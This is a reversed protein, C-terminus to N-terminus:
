QMQQRQAAPFTPSSVTPAIEVYHHVPPTSSADGRAIAMAEERRRRWERRREQAIRRADKAIGSQTEGGPWGIHSPSFLVREFLYRILSNIDAYLMLQLPNMKMRGQPADATLGGGEGLLIYNAHKIFDFFSILFGLLFVLFALLWSLCLVTQVFLLYNWTYEAEGTEQLGGNQVRWTDWAFFTHTRLFSLSSFATTASLFLLSLQVGFLFRVNGRGVCCGAVGAHTVHQQVCLGCENCHKAGLPRWTMCELCFEERLGFRDYAFRDFDDKLKNPHWRPNGVYFADSPPRKSAANSSSSSADQKARAMLMAKEKEEVPHAEFDHRFFNEANAFPNPIQTSSMSSSPPAAAGARSRISEAESDTGSALSLEAAETVTSLVSDHTTSSASGDKRRMEYKKKEAREKRAKKKAKRQEKTMAEGEKEEGKVREEEDLQTVAHRQATPAVYHPRSPPPPLDRMTYGGPPPLGAVLAQLALACEEVEAEEGGRKAKGMRKVIETVGEKRRQDQTSSALSATEDSERVSLLSPYSSSWTYLISLTEVDSLPSDSAHLDMLVYGPDSGTMAVFCVLICTAFLLLLFSLFSSHPLSPLLFLIFPLLAVVLGPIVVCVVGFM